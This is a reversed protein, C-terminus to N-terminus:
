WKSCIESCRGVAPHWWSDHDSIRSHWSGKMDRSSLCLWAEKEEPLDQLDVDSSSPSVLAEAFTWVAFLIDFFSVSYETFQMFLTHIYIYVHILTWRSNDSQVAIFNLYSSDTDSLEFTICIPIPWIGPPSSWSERAVVRKGFIDMHYIWIDTIGFINM